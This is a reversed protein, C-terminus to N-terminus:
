GITTAAPPPPAATPAYASIPSSPPGVRAGTGAYSAGLRRSHSFDPGRSLLDIGVNTISVWSEGSPTCVTFFLGFRILSTLLSISDSPALTLAWHAVSPRNSKTFM